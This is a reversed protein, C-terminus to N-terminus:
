PIHYIQSINIKTIAALCVFNCEFFEAVSWIQIVFTIVLAKPSGLPTVLNWIGALAMKWFAM